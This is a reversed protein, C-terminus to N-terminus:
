IGTRFMKQETWTFLSYISWIMWAWDKSGAQHENWIRGIIDVDIINSFIEPVNFLRKEFREKLNGRLWEALPPSFGKKKGSDDAGVPLLSSLLRRLPLKAKTDDVCDSYQYRRSLTVMDRSLVPTRVELSHYMGARDVKLLVRQLHIHYELSRAYLMASNVTSVDCDILKALYPKGSKNSQPMLLSTWYEAGPIGQKSLYYEKFNKYKFLQFPIKKGAIIGLIFDRIRKIKSSNFFAVYKAAEKFRPYGWFLEDGGDGSLAVTFQEKALESVKLTM